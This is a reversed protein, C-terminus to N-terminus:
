SGTSGFGNASRPSDTLADVETPIYARTTNSLLILQAVREGEKVTVPESSLNWVGSFLEGRYGPDIVGTAVHLGRKRLTSSRGVVMAWVHSPLEVAIRNPVDVFEGPFIETDEAVVLDFGADDDYFRKPPQAGDGMRTWPLVQRREDMDYQYDCLWDLALIFKVMDDDGVQAVNHYNEYMPLTWSGSAGVILVPVGARAMREIEVGVGISPAGGSLVAIMGNCHALAANNVASVIRTPAGECHGVGFGDGPDFWGIGRLILHQKLAETVILNATLADQSAFDIPHALYFVRAREQDM